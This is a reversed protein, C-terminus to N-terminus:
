NMLILWLQSFSFAIKPSHLSKSLCFLFLMMLENLTHELLARHCVCYSWIALFLVCENYCKVFLEPGRTCPFTIRAAYWIIVPSRFLSLTSLMMLYDAAPCKIDLRVSLLLIFNQDTNKELLQSVFCLVFSLYVNLWLFGNVVTPM